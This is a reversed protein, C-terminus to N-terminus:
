SWEEEERSQTELEALEEGVAAVVDYSMLTDHRKPTEAIVAYLRDAEEQVMATDADVRSAAKGKPTALCEAQIAGNVMNIATNLAGAMRIQKQTDIDRLDKDKWYQEKNQYETKGKGASSTTPATGEKSKLTDLDVQKGYQSDEYEFKVTYGKEFPVPDRGTRYWVENICFSYYTGSALVKSAVASVVGAAESM